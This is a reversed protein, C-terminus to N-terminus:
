GPLYFINNPKPPYVRINNHPGSMIENIVFEGVKKGTVLNIKIKKNPAL